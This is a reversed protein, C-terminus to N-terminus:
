TPEGRATGPRAPRGAGLATLRWGDPTREALGHAVLPPMVQQVVLPAVGAARALGSVGSSRRVPLADLVRRVTDSLGDRM